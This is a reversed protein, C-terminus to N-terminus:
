ELELAGIEPNWVYFLVQQIGSPNDRDFYWPEDSGPLMVEGLNHAATILTGRNLEPGAAELLAAAFATYRCATMSSAFYNVEDEEREAESLIVIELGSEQSDICEKTPSGLQRFVPEPDFPGYGVAGELVSLDNGEGRVYVNAIGTDTIFLKPRYDARSMGVPFASEAGGLLLVQDINESQFKLAMTETSAFLANTDNVALSTDIFAIDVVEVGGADLLPKIQSEYAEENGVTSVVGISGTLKGSSILAHIGNLIFNEGAEMTFWLTKALALNEPTIGGGLLPTENIDVICLVDDGVFNGVVLFVNEDETLLTCAATSADTGIPDVPGFVPVLRRGHVGGAANVQDFAVQYAAEYDGQDIGILPGVNTLDPYIVGIKIADDTVGPAREDAIEPFLGLTGPGSPEPEEEEPEAGDDDPAQEGEDTEEPASAADDPAQVGEDTEEPAPVREDPTEPAPAGAGGDDPAEAVSVSETPAGKEKSTTCASLALAFAVVLPLLRRM